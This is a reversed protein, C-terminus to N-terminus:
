KIIRTQQLLYGCHREQVKRKADTDKVFYQVVPQLEKTNSQPGFIVWYQMHGITTESQSMENSNVQNCCGCSCRLRGGLFKPKADIDRGVAM